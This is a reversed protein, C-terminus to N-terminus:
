KKFILKYRFGKRESVVMMVGTILLSLLLYNLNFFSSVIGAWLTEVITLMIYTVMLGQFFERSLVYLIYKKTIKEDKM